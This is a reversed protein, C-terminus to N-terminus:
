LNVIKWLVFLPWSCLIMNNQEEIIRPDEKIYNSRDDPERFGYGLLSSGQFIHASDSHNLFPLLFYWAASKAAARTTWTRWWCKAPSQQKCTLVKEGHSSVIKWVCGDAHTTNHTMIPSKRKDMQKRTGKHKCWITCKTLEINMRVMKNVEKSVQQDRLDCESFAKM